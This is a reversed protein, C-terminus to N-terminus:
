HDVESPEKLSKIFDVTLDHFGAWGNPDKLAGAASLREAEIMKALTTLRNQVAQRGDLPIGEALIKLISECAFLRGALYQLTEAPTQDAM